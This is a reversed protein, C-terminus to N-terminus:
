RSCREHDGRYSLALLALSRISCPAVIPPRGHPVPCGPCRGDTAPHTVLLTQILEPMTAMERALQTFPDTPEKM